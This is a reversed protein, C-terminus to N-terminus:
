FYVDSAPTLSSSLYIPLIQLDIAICTMFFLCYTWDLGMLYYAEGDDFVWYSTISFYGSGCGIGKILTITVGFSTLFTRPKPLM